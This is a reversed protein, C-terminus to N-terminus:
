QSPWSPAVLSPGLIIPRAPNGGAPPELIIFPYYEEHNNQSVLIIRGVNVIGAPFGTKWYGSSKEGWQLISQSSGPDAILTAITIVLPEGVIFNDKDPLRYLYAPKEPEGGDTNYFALYIRAKEGSLAFTAHFRLFTGAGAIWEISPNTILSPSHNLAIAKDHEDSWVAYGIGCVAAFALSIEIRRRRTSPIRDLTKKLQASYKALGEAGLMGGGSVVAWWYPAVSKLYVWLNGM